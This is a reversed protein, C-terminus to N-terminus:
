RDRRHFRMEVDQKPILTFGASFELPEDDVREFSYERLVMALLLILEAMAFKRAICIRPGGGFPFYAFEPLEEELSGTWRDPRFSEPDDYFRDDRHLVWTPLAVVSGASLTYGGVEVASTAERRIEHAPPYVRMAEKVIRETYELDRVDAFTPERDGLVADIEERLAREVAPHRSVLELAFTAALGTTEHGAFIFTKMQDRIREDSMSSGEHEAELLLSLLDEATEDSTRRREIVEDTFAELHRIGARYRRVVPVPVWDPLFLKLPQNKPDTIAQIKEVAEGFGREEYDIDTGFMTEALIQLSAARMEQEIDLVDGDSWGDITKRANTVIVDTYEELRDPYFLPQLLQRQRHWEDGESLILGEGLIDGLQERTTSPRTFHEAESIMVTEICEPDTLMYMEQGLISYRVVDGYQEACRDRFACPDRAWQITNGILPTGSPGPPADRESTSGDSPGTVFRDLM